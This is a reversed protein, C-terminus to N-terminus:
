NLFSVCSFNKKLFFYRFISVGASFPSKKKRHSVFNKYFYSVFFSFLISLM